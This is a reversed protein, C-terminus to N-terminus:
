IRLVQDCHEVIAPRHTIFILTKGEQTATLRTILEQETETDLASTVEDLVLISGERLLSRAIAIRQAQGESWGGGMEGCPADLGEPTEMVFDACATHLAAQMEEDTADPKGLLLNDRVTGSFLSNGQPVYIFNCRTLPSSTYHREGNYLCVEGKEPKVLALILRILTTKGAGTEGMIATSSHPPFNYSFDKFIDKEGEGYAFTIKEIRVGAVGALRKPEGQEEAPLEELEMLRETSTLSSVLGPILKAMDMVPRQIQGVLQLFATMIGFTIEGRAIGVVGWVFAVLYGLSFGSRVMAFAFVSFKTRKIIQSHLRSQLGELHEEVTENQELTKILTKHQLNEQLTAQIKSDSDRVDRNMARMRKVYVKSFLIFLPMILVTVVALTRNMSFLFLFSAILQIIVVAIVPLIDTLLSVVQNVDLELRNLIDGTHHKELGRWETQLLRAFFSRRLENRAKVGLLNSVWRDACGLLIQMGLLLAMGISAYLLSGTTEGTAIDIAHKCVWVFVLGCVVDVIGISANLLAQLRMGRSTRWLWGLLERNKLFDLKAM